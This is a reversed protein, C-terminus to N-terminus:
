KATMADIAVDDDLLRQLIKQAQPPADTLRADIRADRLEILINRWRSREASM